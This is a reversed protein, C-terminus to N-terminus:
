GLLFLHMRMEHALIPFSVCVFFMLIDFLVHNSNSVCVDGM